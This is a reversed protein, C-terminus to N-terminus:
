GARLYRLSRHHHAHGHMPGRRSVVDLALRLALHHHRPQALRSLVDAATDGDMSPEALRFRLRAAPLAISGFGGRERGWSALAVTFHRATGRDASRTPPRARSTPALTPNGAQRTIALRARTSSRTAREFPPSDSKPDLHGPGRRSCRSSTGFASRYM